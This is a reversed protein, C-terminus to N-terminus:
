ANSSIDFSAIGDVSSRDLATDANQMFFGGGAITAKFNLLDGKAINGFRDVARVLITDKQGRVFISSSAVANIQVPKAPAVSFIRSAFRGNADIFQFRYSGAQNM